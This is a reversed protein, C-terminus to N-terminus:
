SDGDLLHRLRKMALRIRSKVTGLPLGLLAAIEAHPKDEFFSLTIVRLQEPSLQGIAARVRRETDRLALAADPQPVDGPLNVGPLAIRRRERRLADLQLNKAIRYIWGSASAGAPDFLGAKRWVILMTDQALEEALVPTAGFQLMLTKIRPAFYEFLQGFAARDQTRAIAVILDAFDIQAEPKQDQSRTLGIAAKRSKSRETAGSLPLRDPPQMFDSRLSRIEARM